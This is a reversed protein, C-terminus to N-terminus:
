DESILDSLQYTDYYNFYKSINNIKITVFMTDNKNYFWDEYEKMNNFFHVVLRHNIKKLGYWNCKPCKKLKKYDSMESHEDWYAGCKNCVKTYVCIHYRVETALQRANLDIRNHLQSILTLSSDTDPTNCIKRILALFDNMCTNQRSNFRRADILTHAEDLVVSFSGYKEKFKLWQEKNFVYKYVEEGTKKVKVLEKHILMDRNIVHNKSIKYKGKTKTIINSFTHCGYPNIENDVLDKVASITKGSGVNGLFIRIM